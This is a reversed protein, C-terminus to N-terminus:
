GKAASQENMRGELRVLKQERVANVYREGYMIKMQDIMIEVDAIEEIVSSIARQQAGHDDDDVYRAHLIADGLEHMEELVKDHQRTKGYTDIARQIIARGTDGRVMDYHEALMRSMKEAATEERANMEELREAAIRRIANECWKQDCAVCGSCGQSNACIRLSKVIDETKIENNM